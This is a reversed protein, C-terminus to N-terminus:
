ELIITEINLFKKNDGPDPISIINYKRIQDDTLPYVGASSNIISKKKISYIENIHTHGHFIIDVNYKKFLRLIKKKSYLRMKRDVVRLWLSHAPYHADSSPENFHHHMLVFKYMNKISDRSLIDEIKQLDDKLIEGNSGEPNKKLSWRANSNIGIVAINDNLIKLFPFAPNYSDPFTDSYTNCFLNLAGDYDLEKCMLSYVFFLKGKPPGGFIDHNGPILSLRASDLLHFYSIIEKIYQLDRVEPNEVIDGTLFIHQCDRSRIDRLLEVLRKGHEDEDSFSIHLDSIHAIKYM